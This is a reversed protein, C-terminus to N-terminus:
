VIKIFPNIFLLVLSVLLAYLVLSEMFALGILLTPLIKSQAEPNRGIAEMARAVANGQGLGPGITAIGIGLAAALASFVM